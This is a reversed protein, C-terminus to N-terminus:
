EGVDGWEVDPLCEDDQEERMARVEENIYAENDDVDDSRQNLSTVRVGNPRQTLLSSM